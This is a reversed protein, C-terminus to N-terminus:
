HGLPPQVSSRKENRFANKLALLSLPISLALSRTTCSVPPLTCVHNAYRSTSKKIQTSRFESRYEARFVCCHASVKLSQSAARQRLGFCQAWAPLSYFHSSAKLKIFDCAGFVLIINVVQPSPVPANGSAGVPVNLGTRDLYLSGTGTMTRSYRM